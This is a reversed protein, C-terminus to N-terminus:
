LTVNDCYLLMGLLLQHLLQSDVNIQYQTM